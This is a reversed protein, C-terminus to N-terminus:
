IREISVPHRFEVAKQSRRSGLAQAQCGANGMEIARANMDLPEVVTLLLGLGRDQVDSSTIALIMPRVEVVHHHLQHHLVLCADREQHLRETAVATIGL